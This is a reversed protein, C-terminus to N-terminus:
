KKGNLKVYEEWVPYALSKKSPKSRLSGPARITRVIIRGERVNKIASDVMKREQETMKREKM